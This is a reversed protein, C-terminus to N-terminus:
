KPHLVIKVKVKNDKRNKKINIGYDSINIVTHGILCNKKKTFNFTIEKSVGKLTLKGTALISNDVVRITSSEFTIRAYKDANFYKSGKLSWNRIFNGTDITKTEVSGKLKSNPLDNLDLASSSSFGAITGHVNKSLFEFSIEAFAIKSNTQAALYVTPLFVLLFLIRPRM